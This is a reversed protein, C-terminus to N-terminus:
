LYRLKASLRLERLLPSFEHLDATLPMFDTTNGDEM